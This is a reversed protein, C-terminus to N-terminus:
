PSTTDGTLPIKEASDKAPKGSCKADPKRPKKGCFECIRTASDVKHVTPPQKLKPVKPLKVSKQVQLSRIRDEFQAPTLSDFAPGLLRPSLDAIPRPATKPGKM